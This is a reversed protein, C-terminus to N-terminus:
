PELQRNDMDRRRLPPNRRDSRENRVRSVENAVAGIGAADRVYQHRSYRRDIDVLFWIFIRQGPPPCLNALASTDRQGGFRGRSLSARLM